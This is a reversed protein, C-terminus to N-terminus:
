FRYDEPCLSCAELIDAELEFRLPLITSKQGADISPAQIRRLSSTAPLSAIM